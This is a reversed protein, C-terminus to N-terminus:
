LKKKKYLLLLCASKLLTEHAQLHTTCVPRLIGVGHRNCEVLRYCEYAFLAFMDLLAVELHKGFIEVEFDDVSSIAWVDGVLTFVVSQGFCEM